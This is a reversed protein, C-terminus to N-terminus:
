LFGLLITIKLLLNSIRIRALTALIELSGVLLVGLEVKAAFLIQMALTRIPWILSFVQMLVAAAEPGALVSIANALIVLLVVM